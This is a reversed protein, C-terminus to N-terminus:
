RRNVEDNRQFAINKNNFLPRGQISHQLVCEESVVKVTKNYTLIEVNAQGFNYLGCDRSLLYSLVDAIMSYMYYFMIAVRLEM